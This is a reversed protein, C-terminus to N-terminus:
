GAQTPTATFALSLCALLVLLSRSLMVWRWCFDSLHRNQRRQHDSPIKQRRLQSISLLSIARGKNLFNDLIILALSSLILACCTGYQTLRPGACSPLQQTARAGSASTCSVPPAPM